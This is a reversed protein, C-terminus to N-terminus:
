AIVKTAALLELYYAQSAEDIEVEYEDDIANNYRWGTIGEDDAYVELEKDELCVREKGNLYSNVVMQVQERTLTEYDM